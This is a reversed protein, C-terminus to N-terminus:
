RKGPSTLNNAARVDHRHKDRVEFSAVFQEYIDAAEAMEQQKKAERAEREKQFRPTHFCIFQCGRSCRCSQAQRTKKQQGLAFTALKSDSLSRLAGPKVQKLGFPLMKPGTEDAEAM